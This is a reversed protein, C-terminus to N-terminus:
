MRRSRWIAFVFLSSLASLLLVFGFAYPHNQLPLPVNMSFISVVLTPAMLAITVITLNKMLINLNNAVISARADMLNSIVNSYIEALRYCQQNDIAIDELFEMQEPSFRLKASNLRLKEILVSNAQIAHLYYVLSKELTFLSLLHRNELSSNIKDEVEDAVMNMVKLHEIFHAIAYNLLHLVLGAPTEQCYTPKRRFLPADESVVVILKNEFVFLGMSSVRFMFEEESSYNKPRKAIIAVHNPEFEIRSLEDPDLASNLTHEDIRCSQVLYQREEDDPTIYVHLLADDADTPVFERDQLRYRKLM